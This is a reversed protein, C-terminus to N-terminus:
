SLSEKLCHTRHHCPLSTSCTTWSHPQFDPCLGNWTNPLDLAMQDRIDKLSFSHLGLLFSALHRPAPMRRAEKRQLIKKKKQHKLGAGRHGTGYSLWSHEVEEALILTIKANVQDGPQTNQLQGSSNGFGRHTRHERNM